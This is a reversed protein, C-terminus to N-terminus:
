PASRTCPPLSCNESSSRKQHTDVDDIGIAAGIQEGPYVRRESRVGRQADAAAAALIEVPPRDVARRDVGAAMAADDAVIRALQHDAHTGAGREGIELR